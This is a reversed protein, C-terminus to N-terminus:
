AERMSWSICHGNRNVPGGVIQCDGCGSTGTATFFVCKDCIQNADEYVEVYQVSRRLSLESQSLMDPDACVWSAEDFPDVDCAGLTLAVFGAAPFQVGRVLVSRRTIKKISKM